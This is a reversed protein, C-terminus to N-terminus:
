QKLVLDLALLLLICIIYKNWFLLAKQKKIQPQGGPSYFKSVQALEPESAYSGATTPGLARDMEFIM